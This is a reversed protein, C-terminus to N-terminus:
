FAVGVKLKWGSLNSSGPKPYFKVYKVVFLASRSWNAEEYALQDPDVSNALVPCTANLLLLTLGKMGAFLEPGSSVTWLSGDWWSKCLKGSQKLNKTSVGVHIQLLQHTWIWLHTWVLFEPTSPNFVSYWFKENKTKFIPIDQGSVM